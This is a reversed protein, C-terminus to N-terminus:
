VETTFTEIQDTLPFGNMVPTESFSGLLDGILSFISPMSPDLSMGAIVGGVAATTTGIALERTVSQWGSNLKELKSILRENQTRLKENDKRLNEIDSRLLQVDNPYSDLEEELERIIQKLENILETQGNDNRPIIISLAHNTLKVAHKAQGVTIHKSLSFKVPNNSKLLVEIQPSSESVKQHETQRSNSSKEFVNKNNAHDNVWKQWHKPCTLNNPLITGTDGVMSDLQKQTLKLAQSLDTFDMESTDNGLSLDVSQVNTRRLNTGKLITGKLTAGRLDVERLDADNLNSGQLDAGRLDAKNLQVEELDAEKFDSDKLDAKRLNAKWLNATGLSAWCLQAEELNTGWLTAGWLNANTLNAFKLDTGNLDAGSLDTDTLDAGRLNTYNLKARSLNVEKLKIGNFDASSLDPRFDNIKRRANWADVGEHLWKLHEPNSM